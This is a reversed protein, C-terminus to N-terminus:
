FDHKRKTDGGARSGRCILRHQTDNTFLREPLRELNRRVIAQLEADLATITAGPRLRAIMQSFENGRGADSKQQATFAFPVLVAINRMPLVFDAPLVGVVTYPEGGLRVDRGIVSPDSGFRSTWLGYTLIAFNDADPTADTEVFARGLMPSKRLTTFFSPTVAMSRLQAPEGDIALSLSSMTVLTADEISPAQEIRDVYDPISVAAKPLGMRPYTNWVYVLRESEPYPLPRLFIQYLLGFIATNAGIGIALTLIAALAFAPQRILTRVAYRVDRM